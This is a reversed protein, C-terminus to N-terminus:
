LATDGKVEPHEDLFNIRARRFEERVLTETHTELKQFCVSGVILYGIYFCIYFFLFIQTRKYRAFYVAEGCFYSQRCYVTDGLLPDSESYVRSRYVLKTSRNLNPLSKQTFCENQIRRQQNACLNVYDENITNYGRPAANVNNLSTRERDKSFIYIDNYDPIEEAM